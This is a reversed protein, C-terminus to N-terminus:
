MACGCPLTVSGDAIKKITLQFDNTLLRLPRGYGIKENPLGIVNLLQTIDNLKGCYHAGPCDQRKLKRETDSALVEEFSPQQVNGYYLELWNYVPSSTDNPM